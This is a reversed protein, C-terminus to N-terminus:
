NPFCKRGLTIVTKFQNGSFYIKKFIKIFVLFYVVNVTVQGLWFTKRTVPHAM